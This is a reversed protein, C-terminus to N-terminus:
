IIRKQHIQMKKKQLPIIQQKQPIQTMVNKFQNYFIHCVDFEEKEFKELVIKGVKDADFYNINKSEKLRSKKM